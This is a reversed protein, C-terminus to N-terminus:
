QISQLMKVFDAEKYTDDFEINILLLDNMEALAGSITERETKKAGKEKVAGPGKEKAAGPAKENGAGGPVEETKTFTFPFDEGKIKINKTEVKTNQHPGVHIHTTRNQEFQQRMQANMQGGAGFKPRIRMMLLDAHGENEYEITAASFFMNDVKTLSKPKLGTPLTMKGIEDRAANIQAADHSVIPTAFSHVVSYILYGLIGCCVLCLLGIVCVVILCTKMGGSMGSPPPQVQDHWDDSRRGAPEPRRGQESWDPQSM